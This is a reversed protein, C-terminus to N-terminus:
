QAEGGRAEDDAGEPAPEPTAAAGSPASAADRKTKKLLADQLAVLIQTAANRHKHVIEIDSWHGDAFYRQHVGWDHFPNERRNVGKMTSKAHHKDVLHWFSNWLANVHQRVHAGGRQDGHEDRTPQVAEGDAGFLHDTGDLSRIIGVLACEAALGYHHDANPIRNSDFLHTADSHHRRAAQAYHITM